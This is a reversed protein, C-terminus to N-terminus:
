HAFIDVEAWGKLDLEVRTPLFDFCAKALGTRGERALM